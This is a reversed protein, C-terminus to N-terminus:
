LDSGSYAPLATVVLQVVSEPAPGERRPRQGGYGYPKNLGEPLEVPHSLSSTPVRAVPM